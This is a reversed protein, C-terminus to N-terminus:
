FLDDLKTTDKKNKADYVAEDFIKSKEIEELRKAEAKKTFIAIVAQVAGIIFQILKSV